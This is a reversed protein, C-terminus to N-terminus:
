ARLPLPRADAARGLPALGYRDEITRLVRYHDV